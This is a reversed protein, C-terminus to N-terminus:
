FLLKSVIMLAFSLTWLLFGVAQFLGAGELRWWKMGFMGICSSAVGACFTWMAIGQLLKGAEM